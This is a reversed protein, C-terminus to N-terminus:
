IDTESEFIDDLEKKIQTIKGKEEFLYAICEKTLKVGEEFLAIGQELSVNPEDLKNVIEELKEIKDNLM